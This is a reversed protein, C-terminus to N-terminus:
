HAEDPDLEELIIARIDAWAPSLPDILEFHGAGIMVETTVPDGAGDAAAGYGDGFPSPVIPDLAGSVIVQEAGIPLMEAPSTDGYRGGVLEDVTGPEGCRGPGDERYANLDNIGALTVVADPILPDEARLPSDDGIGGRAAAWLALHGGASHGAFVLRDLDLPYDEAIGRLADAAAATDLFTGPFGGGEHGLRRYEINWVAVGHDRLDAAVYDMLITGPIEALWCGGHVMMVTPFPGDGEPLWLEGFQQEGEGYAIKADAEERPRDLLQDWSIPREGAHPDEPLAIEAPAPDPESPVPAPPPEQCATLALAAFAALRLTM